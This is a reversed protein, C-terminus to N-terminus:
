FQGERVKYSFGKLIVVAQETGGKTSMYVKVTTAQLPGARIFDNVWAFVNKIHFYALRLVITHSRQTYPAVKSTPVDEPASMEWSLLTLHHAQAYRKFFVDYPVMRKSFTLMQRRYLENYLPYTNEMFHRARTAQANLQKKQEQIKKIKVELAKSQNHFSTLIVIGGGFLGLGVCVMFIPSWFKLRPLSFFM